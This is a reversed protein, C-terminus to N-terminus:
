PAKPQVTAETMIEKEALEAGILMSELMLAFISRKKSPVTVLAAALQEADSIQQPTYTKTAM